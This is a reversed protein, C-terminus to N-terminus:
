GKRFADRIARSMAQSVVKDLGERQQLILTSDPMSPFGEKKSLIQFDDRLSNEGV